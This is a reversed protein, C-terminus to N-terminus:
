LAATISGYWSGSIPSHENGLKEQRRKTQSWISYNAIAVLQAFLSPLLFLLEELIPSHDGSFGNHCKEAMRRAFLRDMGMDAHQSSGSSSRWLTLKPRFRMPAKM